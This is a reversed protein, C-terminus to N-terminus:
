FYESLINRESYLYESLNELAMFGKQTKWGQQKENEQELTWKNNIILSIFTMNSTITM